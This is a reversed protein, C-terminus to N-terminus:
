KKASTSKAQVEQELEIIPKLADIEGISKMVTVPKPQGRLFLGSGKIMKPPERGGPTQKSTKIESTGDDRPVVEVWYGPTNAFDAEAYTADGSPVREHAALQLHSPLEVAQQHPHHDDVFVRLRQMRFRRLRNKPLMGHVAKWLVRQPHEALMRRVPFVTLGGMFQTHWRYHKQSAKKGTFAVLAANTVVINDGCDECPNFTPKHKGAIITAVRAALKGVIANRADIKYWAGQRVAPIRFLVRSM